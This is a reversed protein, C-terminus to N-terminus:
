LDSVATHEIKEWQQDATVETAQADELFASRTAANLFVFLRGNQVLFQNPDGDFKKGVSVGYSCFGGHEPAFKAPDAKFAKMNAESVFYYAAGDHTAAYDASGKVVEGGDVLSVPDNGRLALPAGAATIGPAVNVEDAAFAPAILMPTVALAAILLAKM